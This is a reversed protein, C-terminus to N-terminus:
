CVSVVSVTAACVAQVSRPWLDIPRWKLLPSSDLECRDLKCLEAHFFVQSWEPSVAKIIAWDSHTCKRAENRNRTIGHSRPKDSRLSDWTVMYPLIRMRMKEWHPQFGDQKPPVYSLSWRPQSSPMGYAQTHSRCHSPTLLRLPLLRLSLRVVM